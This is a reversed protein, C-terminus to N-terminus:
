IRKLRALEMKTDNLLAYVEVLESEKQALIKQTQNMRIEYGKLLNNHRDILEQIKQDYKKQDNIKANLQQLKESTETTLIDHSQELKGLVMQMRDMRLKSNNQNETVNDALSQLESKLSTIEKQSIQVDLELNFEETPARFKMTDLLRNKDPKREVSVAEGFLESNLIKTKM